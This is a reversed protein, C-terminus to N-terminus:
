PESKYYISEIRNYGEIFGEIEMVPGISGRPYCSYKLTVNRFVIDCWTWFPCVRVQMKIKYTFESTNTLGTELGCFSRLWVLGLSSFVPGATRDKSKQSDFVAFLGTKM